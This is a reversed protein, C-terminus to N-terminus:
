LSSRLINDIKILVQEPVFQKFEVRGAPFGIEIRPHLYNSGEISEIDASVSVLGTATHLQTDNRRLLDEVIDDHRLDAVQGAEPEKSRIEIAKSHDQPNTNKLKLTSYGDVCTDEFRGRFGGELFSIRKSDALELHNTVARVTADATTTNPARVALLQSRPEFTAV